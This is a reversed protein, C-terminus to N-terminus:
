CRPDGFITCGMLVWVFSAVGVLLFAACSLVLAIGLVREVMRGLPGWQPRLEGDPYCDPDHADGM